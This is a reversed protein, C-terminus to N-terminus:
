PPGPGLGTASRASADGVIEHGCSNSPPAALGTSALVEAPRLRSGSALDQPPRQPSVTGRSPVANQKGALSVSDSIGSLLQQQAHGLAESAVHELRELLCNFAVDAGIGSAPPVLMGKDGQPQQAPGGPPPMPRPGRGDSPIVEAAPARTCAESAASPELDMFLQKRNPSTAVDDRLGAHFFPQAVAQQEMLCFSNILSHDLWPVERFGTFLAKEEPGEIQTPPPSPKRFAEEFPDQLKVSARDQAGSAGLSSLSVVPGALAAHDFSERLSSRGRMFIEMDALTRNTHKMSELLHRRLGVIHKVCAQNSGRLELIVSMLEEFDMDKTVQENSPDQLDEQFLSDCQDLLFIVDVGVEELLRVAQANDLICLFESKSILGDGSTDLEEFLPKMREKVFSVLIAEKETSSVASVVECLVGILMNMVTCSSLLVFVWFMIGCVPSQAGLDRVLDGLNDMLTGDILLTYMSIPVSGFHDAGVATGDTLQRLAIAFVYLLIGLLLLTFIVSRTAAVIGKILILLEPVARFLRVMRAMRSLRLLRAMRLISANGMGGGSGNGSSMLLVASMLWSELVMMLVLASDFCFWADRLCHRKLRFALFRATWEFSFYLVFFYEVFQFVPQAETLVAAHNMDTDISIWLANLAIVSLTAKEFIGNRAIEQFVGEKHYFDCVNYPKRILSRRVNEKLKEPDVSISRKRTQWPTDARTTDTTRVPKGFASDQSPLKEVVVPEQSSAKGVAAPEEAEVADADAGKAPPRPRATSARLRLALDM